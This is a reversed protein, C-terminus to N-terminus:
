MQRLCAEIEEICRELELKIPAIKIESASLDKERIVGPVDKTGMEVSSKRLQNLEKHLRINEESLIRNEEKLASMREVVSLVSAELGEIRSLLEKM